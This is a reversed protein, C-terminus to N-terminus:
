PHGGDRDNGHDHDIGGLKASSIWFIEMPCQAPYCFSRQVLRLQGLKM